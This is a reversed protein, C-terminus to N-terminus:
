QGKFLKRFEGEVEDYWKLTMGRKAIIMVDTSPPFLAKNQRFVERLLRKIRTRSIM